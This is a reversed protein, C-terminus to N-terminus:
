QRAKLLKYFDKLMTKDEDGLKAEDLFDKESFYKGYEGELVTINKEFDDGVELMFVHKVGSDFEYSGFFEYGEPMFDLEEKAERLLTEEPNEGDEIGGGFFAFHDPLRKADKERKQLFVFIEGAKRYYPILLSVNRKGPM